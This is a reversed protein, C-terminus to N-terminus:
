GNQDKSELLGQNHSVASRNPLSLETGADRVHTLELAGLPM